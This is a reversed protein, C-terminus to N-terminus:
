LEGTNMSLEESNKKKEKKVWRELGCTLNESPSVNIEM